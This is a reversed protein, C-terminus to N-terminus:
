GEDLRGREQLAFALNALSDLHKPQQELRRTCISIVEKFDGRARAARVLPDEEREGKASSQPQQSPGLEAKITFQTKCKNCTVARCGYGDPVQGAQNCNPCRIMIAM